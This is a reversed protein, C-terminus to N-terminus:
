TPNTHWATPLQLTLEAKCEDIVCQPIKKVDPDLGVCLFSQKEFIQKILEQRTMIM